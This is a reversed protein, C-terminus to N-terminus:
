SIYHTSGAGEGSFCAATQIIVRPQGEHRKPGSRLSYPRGTSSRRRVSSSGLSTHSFVHRDDAPPMSENPDPTCPWFEGPVRRSVELLSGFPKSVSTLM